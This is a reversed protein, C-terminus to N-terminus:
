SPDERRSVRELRHARTVVNHQADTFELYSNAASDPTFLATQLTTLHVTINGTLPTVTLGNSTTFAHTTAGIKLNFTVSLGTLIFPSGDALKRRYTRDFTDGIRIPQLKVM